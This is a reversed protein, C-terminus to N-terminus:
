LNKFILDTEVHSKPFYNLIKLSLKRNNLIPIIIPINQPNPSIHM